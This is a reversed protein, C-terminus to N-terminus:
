GARDNLRLFNATDAEQAGYSVVYDPGMAVAKAEAERKTRHLGAFHYPAPRFVGWGRIMKGIPLQM